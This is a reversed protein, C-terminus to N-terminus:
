SDSFKDARHHFLGSQPHLSFSKLWTFASANESGLDKLFLQPTQPKKNPNPKKLM